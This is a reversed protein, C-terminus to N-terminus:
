SAWARACPGFPTTPPPAPSTVPPTSCSPKPSAPSPPKWAQNIFYQRLLACAGAVAPAAHSTGDSVDYYQQDPPFFPSGDATGYVGYGYQSGYSFFCPDASGDPGRSDAQPAGGSVHTGPALLDPKQRGDRCPGRASFSAVQNANVAESDSGDNFPQVNDAAGVCITNKATAGPQDVVVASGSVNGPPSSM